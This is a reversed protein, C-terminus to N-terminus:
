IKRFTLTVVAGITSLKTRLTGCSATALETGKLGQERLVAM